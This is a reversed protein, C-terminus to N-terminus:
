SSIEHLQCLQRFVHEHQRLLASWTTGDTQAQERWWQRWEAPCTGTSNILIDVSSSKSAATSTNYFM